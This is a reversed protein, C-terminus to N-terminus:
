PGDEEHLGLEIDEALRYGWRGVQHAHRQVYNAIRHREDLVAREIERQVVISLRDIMGQTSPRM